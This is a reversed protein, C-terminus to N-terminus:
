SHWLRSQELLKAVLATWGTQARAGLGEGTDGHFYEYFTVHDRFFPDRQLPHRSGNAPRVGQPGATFLAILRRSLEAAVEWLTLWRGSGTPCEIKLSEGYYHAARQLAEIVLYNVPMWVPGRWNSNGGFLGTQSEAPEYDVRFSQSDIRLEYPHKAHARSLSRVGFPSLFESEDLM